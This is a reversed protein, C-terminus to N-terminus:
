PGLWRGDQGALFDPFNILSVVDGAKLELNGKNSSSSSLWKQPKKTGQMLYISVTYSPFFFRTLLKNQVLLPSFFSIFKHRGLQVNRVSPPPLLNPPMQNGHDTKLWHTSDTKITRRQWRPSSFGHTKSMKKSDRSCAEQVFLGALAQRYNTDGERRTLTM